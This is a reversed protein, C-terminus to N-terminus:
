GNTDAMMVVEELTWVHDTIGAEMAPTVRTSQHIRCFNYFAFHLSIAATHNALKKSFANTLRTFRRNHMRITLNAREVLSTSIFDPDPSGSVISKEIRTVKAPSYRRSAEKSSPASYAKVVQGFDVQGGFAKEVAPLYARLGDTSLQVRSALRMALDRMFAKADPVSRTGIHWCPIMKTDPDMAIWVYCDGFVGTGRLEPPVNKEKMGVFGWIEDCEIRKCQLNRMVRDHYDACAQGVELLLKQVTNKSAGTIRCTSGISNGECLLALIAARDQTSLKNM